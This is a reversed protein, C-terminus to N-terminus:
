KTYCTVEWPPGIAPSPMFPIPAIFHQNRNLNLVMDTLTMLETELKIVREELEVVKEDTATLVRM